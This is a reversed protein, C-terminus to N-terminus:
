FCFFFFFFSSFTILSSLVFGPTSLTPRNACVHTDESFDGFREEGKKNESGGKREKKRLEESVGRGVSLGKFRREM